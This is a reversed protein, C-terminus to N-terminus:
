RGMRKMMAQINGDQPDLQAATELERRANLGLGAALYVNALTVRHRSRKPEITCAREALRSAEHLNGNAKVIANAAHAHADADTPRAACVRAWSRAAEVWQGTKAEYAGQRAYTEGLVADAKIQAEHAVRELEADDPSLTLAVRYATAAAVSDGRALAAEATAIYKGAQAAKARDVREEYRRRLADMAGAVNSRPPASVASPPTMAAPPAAVPARPPPTSSSPNRGGMLRRALADRRVAIDIRPPAVAVAPAPPTPEPRPSAGHLGAPPSPAAAPAAATIGPSQARVEREITESTRQAEAIAEALLREIGRSRRQEALYEDYEARREANALTEHAITLRGFVAEMRHKFSGLRKRFYKDPHFRAALEFYARQLTRKDASSTQGLLEYHDLRELARHTELIRQRTAMDLDVDEALAIQESPTRSSPAGDAVPPPAVEPRRVHADSL